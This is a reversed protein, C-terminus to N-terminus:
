GDPLREAAAFLMHCVASGPLVARLLRRTIAFALTGERIAPLDNILLRYVGHEKAIPRVQNVRFGRMELENRLEAVTLRWQYFRYRGQRGVGTEAPRFWDRVIHRWNQFPVTIFLRGGPKLIRFAENVCEGLGDEFHEFTGWSFYADLSADPFTTARIDGAVFRQDPFRSQLTEITAKSLDLGTVCFGEHALWTTWQGLGCGGDLISAGAPLRRLAPGMLGYEESRVVLAGAATEKHWRDTWFDEVFSTEDSAAEADSVAIYDKRV